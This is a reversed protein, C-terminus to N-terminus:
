SIYKERRVNKPDFGLTKLQEFANDIMNPNGCLYVIDTEHNPKLEDFASQVYGKFEYPQFDLDNERSYHARFSFNPYKKAFDLFDEHYILDERKQIGLLLTARIAPDNLRMALQPLMARYPTVGTSTAVFFYHKPQEDRLILRGFPGGATVEDGPQLSFLLQTGAGGEVFGVAIEILQEQNDRASPITAISYSRRMAKDGVNFYITIFQGPIFHNLKEDHCKFALHRVNPTLMKAWDLTLTFTPISM